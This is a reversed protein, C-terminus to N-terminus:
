ARLGEELARELDNWLSEVSELGVSLRVLREPVGFRAAPNPGGVQAHAVSAPCVLSEHGGWSVGLRFRALADCFRPIDVAEALEISFLGSCGELGAPLHAPDLSPSALAPHRVRTVHPHRALRSALAFASREIEALRFPLTRFGRSLLWAEQPALKAGLYPLIEGRVAGVRETSGALAGAVVDSHGGIYKSASHVVLDVGLALPRQFVPTAWSNDIVSVAGASRALAALAAVDPVDFTWSTPSELYLLRAGEVRREVAALDTGDVYEVTVGFRTLFTEFFRYADPYVHELSLVRDGPEVVSLVAASIAGMGSAFGVAAEAGELAALTNEFASVTPNHVRSYVPRAREGRYTETMEEVSAFTFLSNQFIPPVVADFPQEDDGSVIDRAREFVARESRSM